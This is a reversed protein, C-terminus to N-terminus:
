LGIVMAGTIAISILDSMPSVMVSESSYNANQGLYRRIQTLHDEYVKYNKTKDEFCYRTCRLGIVVAKTVILVTFLTLVTFHRNASKPASACGNENERVRM